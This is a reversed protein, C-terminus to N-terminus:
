HSKSYKPTRDNIIGRCISLRKFTNSKSLTKNKRKKNYKEPLRM